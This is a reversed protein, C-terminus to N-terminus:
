EKNIDGSHDHGDFYENHDKIRIGRELVNGNKDIRIRLLDKGYHMFHKGMVDMVDVSIMQCPYRKM